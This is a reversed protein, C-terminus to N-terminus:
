GPTVLGAPPMSLPEHTRRYQLPTLGGSMRIFARDFSSAEAYGLALAIQSIKRETTTLASRALSYVVEDRLGRFNAGEASLYRQLSSRSMNLSAAVAEQTMPKHGISEILASKVQECITNSSARRELLDDAYRRVIALLGPETDRIRSDLVDAQIEIYSFPQNFSLRDGFVRRYESIDAPQAYEFGASAPQWGPDVYNRITTTYVALNLAIDQMASHVTPHANHYEFRLTNDTLLCRPARMSVLLREYHVVLALFEKVTAAYLLVYGYTGIQSFDIREGLHLGIDHDGTQAEFDALLVLYDEYLSREVKRLSHSEISDLLSQDLKATDVGLEEGTKLLWTIYPRDHSTETM